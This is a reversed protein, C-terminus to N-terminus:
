IHLAAEQPDVATGVWKEYEVHVKEYAANMEDIFRNVEAPGPLPQVCGSAPCRSSCTPQHTPLTGGSAALTDATAAAAASGGVEAASM